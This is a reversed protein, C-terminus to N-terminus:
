VCIQGFIEACRLSYEGWGPDNDEISWWASLVAHCLGWSRIREREMGLIESLIAIRKKTQVQPNSGNLFRDNPNILLPGVEYGRPGVVGKPDIALWGRESELVNFHHFDGHLLAEDKNEALLEQSLSEATEVLKEPMPGTGGNFRQRLRKFGNFWDKLQIFDGRNEPVPRWVQHMVEAAIRTAVEDDELTSLMRGPLLLELLFMGKEADADLLRCAGRGDYLRLAAIESALERNPIGLKVVVEGEGRAGRGSPSPSQKAFAVFNYSLNSVPQIDTLRWRRSANDLLNPFSDLWRQGEGQFTNQITQIFNPPLDLMM